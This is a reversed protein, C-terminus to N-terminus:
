KPIYVKDIMEQYEQRAVSRYTIGGGSRYYYGDPRLEIMRIMVASDLNKGDFVGFVGTYNGRPESEIEKILEVTKKKPAGTVSGAPLLAYMISGMKNKFEDELIGSIASSCQLLTKGSTRIETIYRYRDVTVKSSVISLDNRLLDVVTAHEEQEKIDSLLSSEADPLSADITGKMPYTRIIDDTISVFQEPSFVVFEGSVLLKYPANVAEFIKDLSPLGTMKTAYCLNLLYTDGAKIATMVKDFGEQYVSEEIPHKSFIIEDSSSSDGTDAHFEFRIGSSSLASFPIIRPHMMDFDIIFFFPIQQTSLVNMQEAWGPLKMKEDSPNM